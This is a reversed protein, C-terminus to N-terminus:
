ALRLVAFQYEWQGNGHTWTDFREVSGHEALMSRARDHARLSFFRPPKITDFDSIGERDFGGWLGVALPAGARLVRTISTMAAHFREDPVHLLTSMTWGADFLADDFPLEFLSAEIVDLGAARALRVHEPSLDIGSTTLGSDRFATLDRGPGTGIEVISTRGEDLLQQTFADRCGVRVPDVDRVARLAAEQDYFARLDAEAESM